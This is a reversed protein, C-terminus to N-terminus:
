LQSYRFCSVEHDNVMGVAQMHAYIITPGVFRFGRRKLDRSLNESEKSVAPIDSIKKWANIIPKGNVFSWIYTDFTGFEKQVDLFLKANNIAASIKLKNRIISTDQRLREEDKETFLAVKQPNFQAFARKYGERRKLITAWSLGAQAAELMLFEFQKRDDHVPVGWETDHYTHFFPNEAWVCRAVENNETKM